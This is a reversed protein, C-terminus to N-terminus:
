RALYKSAFKRSNDFKKRDFWEPMVNIDIDASVGPYMPGDEVLQKYWQEVRAYMVADINDAM